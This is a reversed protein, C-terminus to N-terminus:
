FGEDIYAPKTLIMREILDTDKIPQPNVIGDEKDFDILLALGYELKFVGLLQGGFSSEPEIYQSRYLTLATAATDGVKIGLNTEASTALATVELVTNTTTGIVVSNGNSYTWIQFPEYFHGSEEHEVAQYDNGWIELVKDQPDGLSLGALSPTTTPPDNIQIPQGALIEEVEEYGLPFAFNYRAPLAFVYDANRALESPNMPAAGIHFHDKALAEWQPYSFIMIPIDQRPTESTWQPHRISLIPGTAAIENQQESISLGQWEDTVITYGQWSMPLDITFGYVSDVYQISTGTDPTQQDPEAQKGNNTCGPLVIITLIILITLFARKM